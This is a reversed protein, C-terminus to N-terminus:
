VVTFTYTDTITNSSVVSTVFVTYTSGQVFGNSSSPTYAFAYLGATHWTGGTGSGTGTVGGLTFNNSDVVTVAAPGANAASFGSVGSVTVLTGNSLGHSPANYTISGGSGAATSVSGTDQFGSLSGTGNQMVTTGPGYIRYTPTSSADTPVNSSNRTIHSGGLASGLPVFGWFGAQM